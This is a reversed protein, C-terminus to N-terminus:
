DQFYKKVLSHAEIEKNCKLADYAAKAYSEIEATGIKYSNGNNLYIEGIFCDHESSECDTGVFGNEQVYDPIGTKSWDVGKTLELILKVKQRDSEEYDYKNKGVCEWGDGYYTWKGNTVKGNELMFAWVIKKLEIEENNM